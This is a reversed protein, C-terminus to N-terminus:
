SCYEMKRERFTVAQLQLEEAMELATRFNMGINEAAHADSGLTIYRGGLERYRRYVPLLAQVARSDGLRRTNLEMVVDNEVAARLVEDIAGAFDGYVLEKDEYAAYRCIYDIHGLVDVYSNQRLMDAMVSLYRGFAEQKSKGDYFDPYYLDLMDIIHISGIVLDFPAGQLFARNAEGSTDSLGVEVGLSLKDGRYPLYKKWYEAADFRFEMEKYHKTNIYDYDYHETFVLGLGQRAAAEIAAEAEMESDSSFTTHSHNDFIM